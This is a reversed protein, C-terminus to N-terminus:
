RSLASTGLELGAEPPRRHGARSRHREIVARTIPEKLTSLGFAIFLALAVLLALVIGGTWKLIRM